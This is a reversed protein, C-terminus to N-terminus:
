EASEEEPTIRGVTQRDGLRARRRLGAKELQAEAALSFRTWPIAELRGAEIRKGTLECIGYTGNRVRDMAQEVQYLADQESSLLGLAFDRDYQDTGADAMHTSFNPQEELAARSLYSQRQLLEERLDKLRRFASRWKGTVELGRKVGLLDGVAAAPRTKARPKPKNRAARVM